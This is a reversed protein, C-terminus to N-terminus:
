SINDSLNSHIEDLRKKKDFFARTFLERDKEPFNEQCIIAEKQNNQFIKLVRECPYDPCEGCNDINKKRVCEKFGLGCFEVSECGSCTIGEPAKEVNGWGVMQWMAAVEKLREESSDKIALYRPCINCDDGCPALKLM